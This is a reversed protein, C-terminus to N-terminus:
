LKKTAITVTTIMAVLYVMTGLLMLAQYPNLISVYLHTIACNVQQWPLMTEMAVFNDILIYQWFSCKTAITVTTVMAVLYVLPM